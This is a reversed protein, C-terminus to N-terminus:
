AGPMSVQSRSRTSRYISFNSLLCSIPWGTSFSMGFTPCTVIPFNLISLVQCCLSSFKLNSISIIMAGLVSSNLFIRTFLQFCLREVTGRKIEKILENNMTDPFFFFIELRIHIFYTNVFALEFCLIVYWRWGTPQRATKILLSFMFINESAQHKRSLCRKQQLNRFINFGKLM